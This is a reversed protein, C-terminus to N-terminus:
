IVKLALFFFLAPFPFHNNPIPPIIKGKLYPPESPRMPFHSSLLSQLGFYSVCPTVLSDQSLLMGRTHTHTHHTVPFNCIFYSIDCYTSLVQNYGHLLLFIIHRYTRCPSNHIRFSHSQLYFHLAFWIM